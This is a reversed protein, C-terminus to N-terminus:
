MGAGVTSNCACCYNGIRRTVPHRCKDDNSSQSPKSRKPAPARLGRELLVRVADSRNRLGHEVKFEDVAKAFPEPVKTSLHVTNETSLRKPM